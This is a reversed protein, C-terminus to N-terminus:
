LEPSPLAVVWEEFGEHDGRFYLSHLDVVLEDLSPIYGLGPLYGSVEEFNLHSVAEFISFNGMGSSECTVENFM